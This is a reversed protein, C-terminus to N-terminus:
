RSLGERSTRLMMAARASPDAVGAASELLSGEQVSASAEGLRSRKSRGEPFRGEFAFEHAPVLTIISAVNRAVFSAINCFAVGLSLVVAGVAHM